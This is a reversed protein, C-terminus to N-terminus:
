EFVSAQIELAVKAMWGDRWGNRWTEDKWNGAPYPSDSIPRGKFGADRGASLIPGGSVEYDAIESELDFSVSPTSCREEGFLPPQSQAEHTM